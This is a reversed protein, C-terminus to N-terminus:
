VRDGKQKLVNLVRIKQKEAYEVTTRTGGKEGNYFAIVLSSHDIMWKDRIIPASCTKQSCIYCIEDAAALISEYKERWKEDWNQSFGDYPIACVLRLEPREEKLALIEETAWIDVGPAMGSIFTTYKWDLARRIGERLAERVQEETQTLKEPRHGTFCVTDCRSASFEM